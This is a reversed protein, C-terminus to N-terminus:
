PKSRVWMWFRHIEEIGAMEVKWDMEKEHHRGWEWRTCYGHWNLEEV